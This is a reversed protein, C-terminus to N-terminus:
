PNNFRLMSCGELDFSDPSTKGQMERLGYGVSRLAVNLQEVQQDFNVDGVTGGGAVARNLRDYPRSPSGEGRDSGQLVIEEGASTVTEVCKNLEKNEIMSPDLNTSVIQNLNKSPNRLAEIAAEIPPDADQPVKGHRAQLARELDRTTERVDGLAVIVKDLGEDRHEIWADKRAADAIQKDYQGSVDAAKVTGYVGFGTGILGLVAAVLSVGVALRGIRRSSRREESTEKDPQGQSPSDVM